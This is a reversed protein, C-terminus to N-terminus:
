RLKATNGGFEAFIKFQHSDSMKTFRKMKLFIVFLKHNLSYLLGDHEYVLVKYFMKDTKQVVM